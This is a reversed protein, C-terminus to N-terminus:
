YMMKKKAIVVEDTQYVISYNKRDQFIDFILGDGRTTTSGNEQVAKKAIYIYEYESGLKKAQVEVCALPSGDLICRQLRQIDSVRESFLNGDLWERGQITTLSTRDTLTPFWELTWDRFLDTNGTVIIFRSGIPTHVSVWAFAKLNENSVRRNSLLLSFYVMGVFMIISLYAILLKGSRSQFINQYKLNLRKEEFNALGPLILQCLAISALMSMPLTNVNAANRPEIIFPIVYFLPLLFEKKAITIAIGLIAFLIIITLYPEDSFPITLFYVVFLYDHLSTQAASFFPAAGFRGIIPLWWISTLALTSAAIILALRLGRKNRGKFFWILIVIAITHVTAEPHTLCVLTCSLISFWLYKNKGDTFAMYVNYATIMLFLQGFSRTIGGGMILWTISRPLLAYIMTAIGAEINSGMLRTALLYFAYISVALVIAPLWRFMELLPIKLIDSTLGAFYFGFPPYAFPIELGNYYVYKPLAYGNKQISETMLFFLGGDNIPFGAQYATYLRLAGGLICATLAIFLGIESQSLKRKENM